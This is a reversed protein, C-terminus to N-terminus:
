RDPTPLPTPRPPIRLAGRSSHRPKPPFLKGRAVGNVDRQPGYEPGAVQTPRPQMPRDLRGDPLALLPEPHPDHVEGQLSIVEVEQDLGVARLAQRPPHLAQANADSAGDVANGSPAPLDKRVPIVRVHQTRRTLGGIRQPIDQLVEPMVQPGIYRRRADIRTRRGDPDTPSRVMQGDPGRPRPQQPICSGRRQTTAPLR